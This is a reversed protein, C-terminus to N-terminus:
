QSRSKRRSASGPPSTSSAPQHEVARTGSRSERGVAHKLAKRALLRTSDVFPLPANRETIIIPLETCGLIVAEAGREKLRAIVDVVRRMGQRTVRDPIIQEFIVADITAQEEDTPLIPQIGRERLPGDYLGDSMTLGIGLVAVRMYGHEACEAVACEVINLFPVPCEAAIRAVAYHPANAPMIVLEAGVSVLKRISDGVLAAVGPWDRQRMRENIIHLSPNHLVIPPHVQPPLYHSSEAVITRYCLAAGEATIAVIGIAKPEPVMDALPPVVAHEEM